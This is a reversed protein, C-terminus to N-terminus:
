FTLSAPVSVALLHHIAPKSDSLGSSLSRGDILDVWCVLGIM